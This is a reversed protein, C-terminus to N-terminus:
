LLKGQIITNESTHRIRPKVSTMNVDYPQVDGIWWEEKGGSKKLYFCFSKTRAYQTIVQLFWKPSTAKLDNETCFLKWKAFLQKRDIWKNRELNNYQPNTEPGHYEDLFDVLESDVMSLLKRKSLNGDPYDILGLQKYKQLCWAMFSYFENWQVEDWDSFLFHGFHIFPSNNDNFFDGFEIIHMRGRYSSGEGKPAYNTNIYVKASEAYTYATLGANRKNVAYDDAVITFEQEIDHNKMMDNFCLIQTAPTIAEYRFQYKPDYNKGDINDVVKMFSLAKAFISKGTRGNKELGSDGIQRDVGVVAKRVSLHKHGDLLYGIATVFSLFRKKLTEMDLVLDEVNAANCSVHFIFQAYVCNWENYKEFNEDALYDYQKYALKHQIYQKKWINQTFNEYPLVEVADKTIKCIGNFFFLHSTHLNDKCFNFNKRELFQFKDVALYSKNGQIFMQLVRKLGREIAYERVYDIITSPQIIEVAAGIVQVFEFSNGQIIRYFGKSQLFELYRLYDINYKEVIEGSDKDKKETVYWFQIDENETEADQAQLNKNQVGRQSTSLQSNNNKNNSQTNGKKNSQNNTENKIFTQKALDNNTYASNVTAKIENYDKDPCLMSCFALTEDQNFNNRKANISFWYIYENRQGSVLTFKKNTFQEVDELTTLVVGNSNTATTNPQQIKESQTTAEQIYIFAGGKSPPTTTNTNSVETNTNDDVNFITANTNVYCNSNHCIFCLRSVDKGSADIDLGWQEKFYNQVQAFVNYQNAADNNNTKFIVKIGANSPSIFALLTHADKCISNYYGPLLDAQIKDIDIVICGTYNNINNIHRKPSFTGCFTPAPFNSQKYNDYATKAKIKKDELVIAAQTFPTTLDNLLTQATQLNANAQTLQQQIQEDITANYKTTLTEVKLKLAKVKKLQESFDNWVDIDDAIFDNFNKATKEVLPALTQRLHKTQKELTNGKILKVVEDFTITTGTNDKANKYYSFIM